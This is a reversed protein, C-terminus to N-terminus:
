RSHRLGHRMVDAQGAATQFVHLLKERVQVDLGDNAIFSVRARRQVHLEVAFQPRLLLGGGPRHQGVVRADQRGRGGESLGDNGRPEDGLAADIRQNEHMAALQQFLPHLSQRREETQRGLRNAADAAASLFGVPESSTATM